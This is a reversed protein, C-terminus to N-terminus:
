LYQTIWIKLFAYFGREVIDTTTIFSPAANNLFLFFTKKKIKYGCRVFNRSETIECQRIFGVLFFFFFILKTKRGDLTKKQTVSWRVCLKVSSFSFFFKFFLKWTKDECKKKLVFSLFYIIRTM